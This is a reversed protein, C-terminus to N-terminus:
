SGQGSPRDLKAPDITNDVVVPTGNSLRNQGATVIIEGPKLGEVIEVLGAHRRDTKVFVQRAVLSPAPPAAPAAAPQADTAPKADTGAPKDGSEAPTAAAPPTAPPPANEVVFVYDGYLSAVVATQPVAIIDADVPLEVRIRIFQGPRLASNANDILAQVNALRTQPDVKPDIGKVEGVISLDAQSAGFKVPQGIKLNALQQEPVTFDVKMKSLDQLTAIVTGVQVYQGIDVRPIGVVGPFRAKIAKQDLVAEIKALQSTASDLNGEATDVTVTSTVGQRALKQARELAARSLEVAKQAALVDAREVSDDIQVLVDGAAVQQNAQFHIEKVVGAAQVAVDTGSAAYVTGFTEVGPQWTSPAVELTSVTVAPRPFNAFFQAIANARFINFGVLGGCVIILLVVAIIFRKIM